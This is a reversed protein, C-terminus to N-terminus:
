GELSKLRKEMNEIARSIAANGMSSRANGPKKILDALREARGLIESLARGSRTSISRSGVMYDPDMLKAWEELDEVRAKLGEMSDSVFGFTESLGEIGM